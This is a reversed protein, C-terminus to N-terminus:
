RFSALIPKAIALMWILDAWRDALDCLNHERRERKAEFHFSMEYRCLNRLNARFAGTKGIGGIKGIKGEM